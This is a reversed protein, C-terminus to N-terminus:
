GRLLYYRGSIYSVTIYFIIDISYIIFFYAQPIQIFMEYEDGAPFGIVANWFCYSLIGCFVILRIIRM